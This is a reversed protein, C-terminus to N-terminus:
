FSIWESEYKTETGASTVVDEYVSLALETSVCGVELNREYRSLRHLNFAVDPSKTNIGNKQLSAIIKEMRNEIRPPM